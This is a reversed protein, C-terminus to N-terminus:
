CLKSARQLRDLISQILKLLTLPFFNEFFNSLNLFLWPYDIWPNSLSPKILCKMFSAFKGEILGKSIRLWKVGDLWETSALFGDVRM